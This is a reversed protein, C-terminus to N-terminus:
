KSLDKATVWVVNKFEKPMLNSVEAINSCEPHSTSRIEEVHILAPHSTKWQYCGNFAAVTHYAKRCETCNQVPLLINIDSIKKQGDGYTLEPNQIQLANEFGDNALCMELICFLLLTVTLRIKSRSM